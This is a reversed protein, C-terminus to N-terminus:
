ELLIPPLGLLVRNMVATGLTTATRQLALPIISTGFYHSGFKDSDILVRFYQSGSSWGSLGCHSAAVSSWLWFDDDSYTQSWREEGM